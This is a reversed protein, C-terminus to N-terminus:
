LDQMRVRDGLVAGGTFPSTPDVAVVGVSCGRWRFERGRKGVLTSKGSGAPGTVGVVHARGTHPVLRRLETEVGVAENEILSILRAAARRDGHVVRESLPPIPETGRTSPGDAVAPSRGENM